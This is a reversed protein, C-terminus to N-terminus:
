LEGHNCYGQREGAKAPKYLGTWRRGSQNIIFRQAGATINDIDGTLKERSYKDDNKFFSLWHTTKLEFLEDLVDDNYIENGVVNIHKIAAVTGEDVNISISVRNRPEPLVDTEISADYRGQQM